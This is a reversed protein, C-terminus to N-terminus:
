VVHSVSFVDHFVSVICCAIFSFVFYSILGWSLSLVFSSGFFWGEKEEQKGKRPFSISFIFFSYASGPMFQGDGGKCRRM